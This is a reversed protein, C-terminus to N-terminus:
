LTNSSDRAQEPFGERLALVTGVLQPNGLRAIKGVLNSGFLAQWSDAVALPGPQDPKTPTFAPAGGPGVSLRWGAPDLAGQFGSDLNLSGDPNLLDALPISRSGAQAAPGHNGPERV